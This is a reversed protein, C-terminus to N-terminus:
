KRHQNMVWKLLSVKEVDPLRKIEGPSLGTYNKIARTFTQQSEYGHELAIALVPENGKILELAAQGLRLNKIYRGLTIGTQKKFVRQMHWPSFGAHKAVIAITIPREQQQAVWELLDDIINQHYDHVSSM